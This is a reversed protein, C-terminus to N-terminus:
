RAFETSLVVNNELNYVGSTGSGTYWSSTTSGMETLILGDLVLPPQPCQQVEDALALRRLQEAVQRMTPRSSSPNALCQSALSAAQCIVGMNAEDVIDSDLLEVLKGSEMAGQFIPILSTREKSLPKKGTLLELLIVGFSYVDNKATLQYELLYDPDLYGPTGKVVAQTKEDITSCGFDSVKAVLGEALLINAPKVDGHLIPRPLSHLHALANASEAAIRLRTALTVHFKRSRQLDLLEQLTKNQVFEYILMPAEFEKDCCHHRRPCGQLRTGQGGKGVINEKAFNNTAVEIKERDYLTFEASSEVKMLELLIQGGHQQFYMDTQRQLAQRKISRKHQIVERVLFVVLGVIAFGSIGIAVKGGTHLTQDRECTGNFANGKPRSRPCLCEFGGPLNHCTGPVSCPYKPDACEDIDTCGHQGDQLYPNGQYGESCNCIYGPGNSSNFCKSNHSVCAYTDVKRRAKDCTENGIAWDVVLPVRGGNSSNFELSSVYSTRFSFAKSEMLVAYSCRSVNYIESTNFGTDFRVRYYKLGRPIATQCCGIGSCSGNTALSTLDGGQCMAVCGSTYKGMNDDDTIYALTQCGVVTFKNDADSITLPTGTFNIQWDNYDMDRSSTNYCASSISNTVRAQGTPLSISLVEVNGHFPRYVHNDDVDCNLYFGPVACGDSESGNWVGFPYPIDVDGCKRQCNGPPPPPPPARAGAVAAHLRATAAAVGLWITVASLLTHFQFAM